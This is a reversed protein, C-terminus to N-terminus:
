SMKPWILKNDMSTFTDLEDEEPAILIMALPLM